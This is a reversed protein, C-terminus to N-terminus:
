DGDLAAVEREFDAAVQFDKYVSAFRLYAVEDAGRLQELVARGVVDSEIVPGAARAALEVEEVMVDVDNADVPRDTLARELGRRVKETQFPEIVGDRKRVLLVAEAREYTTFRSHCGLCERRRRISAGQDAPRSDVVKTDSSGCLPCLM